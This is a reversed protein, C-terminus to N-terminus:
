GRVLIAQRLMVLNAAVLLLLLEVEVRGDRRGGAMMVVVEM